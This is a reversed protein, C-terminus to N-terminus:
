FVLTSIKPRKTGEPLIKMKWGRLRLETLTVIKIVIELAADHDLNDCHGMNLEKLKLQEFGEPMAVFISM